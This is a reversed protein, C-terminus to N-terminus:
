FEGGLFELYGRQENMRMDEISEDARLDIRAEQVRARARRITEFNTLDERKMVEIFSDFPTIGHYEMYFVAELLRDNGRTKPYKELLAEVRESTKKLRSITKDM